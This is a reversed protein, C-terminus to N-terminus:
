EGDSPPSGRPALTLRVSEPSDGASLRVEGARLDIQLRLLLTSSEATEPELASSEASEPELASPEASEPALSSAEVSEPALSPGKGPVVTPQAAAPAPSEEVAEGPLERVVLTTSGLEITDGESLTQPTSIRLGNVFTGNTSGLDEIACFGSPDLSVRAHSRSIEDDEALRGAGEAHRGIVLEDEVIISMGAAKGAAVELRAARSNMGPSYQLQHGPSELPHATPRLYVSAAM